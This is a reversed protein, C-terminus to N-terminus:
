CLAVCNMSKYILSINRRSNWFLNQSLHFHFEFSGIIVRRPKIFLSIYYWNSWWYNNICDNTRRFIGQCIDNSFFPGDFYFLECRQARNEKIRPLLYVNWVVDGLNYSIKGIQESGIKRSVYSLHLQFQQYLFLWGMLIVPNTYQGLFKANTWSLGWSLM